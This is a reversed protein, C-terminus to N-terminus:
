SNVRKKKKLTEDDDSENGVNQMNDWVDEDEDENARANSLSVSGDWVICTPISKGYITELIEGRQDQQQGVERPPPFTSHVRVYRDQAVSGLFSPGVAISSVSGSLGKYGYVIKGNRLDLSYLNSGGDSVFVEHENLGPEVTKIGGLKAVNQWDSVPRRAARTDYRRLDGLQTGTLLHSDSSSLYALSTIRIPKRLGLNDNHVNKARWEETPFLTDKSRKRKNSTPELQKDPPSQLSREVNWISLDVEDGGYAFTKCTPSLKWDLLRTPVSVTDSAETTESTEGIRTRRLAGNSTCSFVNNNSIALGVFCQGNKLRTETWNQTQQVSDDDEVSFVNTLGDSYTAAVLTSNDSTRSSLRQVPASGTLITNLKTKPGDTLKTDYHLAKISGLEDGTLFRM